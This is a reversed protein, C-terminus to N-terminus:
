KLQGLTPVEGNSKNDNRRAPNVTFFEIFFSKEAETKENVATFNHWWWDYGKKLFRGHLMPYNRRLDSKNM